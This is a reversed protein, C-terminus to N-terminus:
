NPFCKFPSNIHKKRNIKYSNEGNTTQVMIERKFDFDKVHVVKNAQTQNKARNGHILRNKGLLTMIENAGAQM